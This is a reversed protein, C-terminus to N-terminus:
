HHIIVAPDPILPLANHGIQRNIRVDEDAIAQAEVLTASQVAVISELRPDSAAAIVRDIAWSLNVATPRAQRLLAAAQSLEARLTELSSAITHRATLALGYAAAAGIAPAGRIVMQRIAEAVGDVNTYDNYRIEHPLLRQDLLRVVGQDLWEISRFPSM